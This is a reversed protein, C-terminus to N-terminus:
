IEHFIDMMGSAQKLVIEISDIIDSAMLSYMGRNRAAEDGALGHLYVGLSAADYESMGQAILAGIIGTLVDGSGGTAMGNNGSINIYRRAEQTVLTRADKIAYILKNNYSCQNATDVLNNSVELVSRGMLRALELLHPTLITNEKLMSTLETWRERDEVERKDIEQNGVKYEGRDYLHSEKGELTSNLKRALLTIADADIIVPVKAKDIVLDVLEGATATLGLGPGVVIVSAWQLEQLLKFQREEEELGAEDYSSFLAEPLLTQLILRNAKSTLIKVLGAGTRYAAKASLYAAGSMGESGAIVLVKGFSGKHGDKKRRPLKALDTSEYYQYSPRVQETASQPFGIDAITLKGEYEAGPYFILGLKNHGFTITEDAKIAVGMVKGNDASIGSPLDVSYVYHDGQNIEKIVEEYVGSVPRSLGVGFISDIIINYESLKNRNEMPIGIRKAMELQAKMSDSVKNEDGIFLIAVHYGQLYLIRGAAVGDGGNNGSGCVALIHDAKDIRKQMAAVVALAAQEMLDLAPIKAEQISYDDIKKMEDSNVAYRM